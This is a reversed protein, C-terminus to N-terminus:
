HQRLRDASIGSTAQLAEVCICSRPSVTVCRNRTPHQQSVAHERDLPNRSFTHSAQQNSAPLVPRSDCLSSLQGSIDAISLRAHQTPACVGGRHLTVPLSALQTAQNRLWYREIFRSPIETVLDVKVELQLSCCMLTLAWIVGLCGSHLGCTNALCPWSEPINKDPDYLRDLTRLAAM